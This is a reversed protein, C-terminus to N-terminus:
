TLREGEKQGQNRGIGERDLWSQCEMTCLERGTGAPFIKSPGWSAMHDRLQNISAHMHGEMHGEWQFDDRSTPSSCHDLLLPNRLLQQRKQPIHSATAPDRSSRLCDCQRAGYDTICDHLVPVDTLSLAQDFTCGPCDDNMRMERHEGARVKRPTYPMWM